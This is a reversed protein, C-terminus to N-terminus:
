ELDFNSVVWSIIVVPIYTLVNYLADFFFNDFRSEKKKKQIQEETLEKTQMERKWYSTLIKRRQEAMMHGLMDKM